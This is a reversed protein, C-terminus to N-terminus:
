IPSDKSEFLKSV